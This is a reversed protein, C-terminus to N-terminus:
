SKLPYLTKKQRTNKYKNINIHGRVPTFAMLDTNFDIVSNLGVFFYNVFWGIKKLSQRKVVRM